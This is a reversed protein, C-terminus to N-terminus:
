PPGAPRLAAAPVWGDVLVPRGEADLLVYAARGLWGRGERRWALLVGPRAGDRPTLVWCHVAATREAPAPAGWGPPVPGGGARAARHDEEQM